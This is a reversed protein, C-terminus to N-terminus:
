SPLRLVNVEMIETDRAYYIPWTKFHRTSIEAKVCREDERKSMYKM